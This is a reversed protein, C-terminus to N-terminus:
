RDWLRGIVHVLCEVRVPLPQSETRFDVRRIVVLQQAKFRELLIPRPQRGRRVSGQGADATKSRARLGSGPGPQEIFQRGNLGTEAIWHPLRGVVVADALCVSTRLHALQRPSRLGVDRRNVDAGIAIRGAHCRHEVTDRGGRRGPRTRGCNRWGYNRWGYNRWGCNGCGCNRSGCNRSGCNRWGRNGGDGCTARRRLRCRVPLLSRNTLGYWRSRDVRM